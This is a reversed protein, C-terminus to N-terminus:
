PRARPTVRAELPQPVYGPVFRCGAGFAAEYTSCAKAIDSRLQSAGEDIWRMLADLLTPYDPDALYSHEHDDTFTQVLHDARGAAQM